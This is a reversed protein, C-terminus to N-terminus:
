AAEALPALQAARAALRARLAAPLQRQSKVRPLAMEGTPEPRAGYLALFEAHNDFRARTVNDVFSEAPTGEALLLGHAALEVHYYTFREAPWPEQRISHGNVLAHAQVLLGDLLLAHDPSVLLDRQPLGEALAGARIRIPAARAPDAFRSVISQRGIWRVAQLSGDACRVRDGIALEEVAREGGECAIATGALFCIAYDAATPTVTDSLSRPTESLLFHTEGDDLLVVVGDGSYGLYTVIGFMNHSLQEGPALTANGAGFETLTSPQTVSYNIGYSGDGNPTLLNFYATSYSAM